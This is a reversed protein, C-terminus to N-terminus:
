FKKYWETFKKFAKARHSYKNKETVTMEAFTRVSNLPRFIPDFGFAESSVKKFKKKAIEGIIEGKFCIPSGLESSYYAIVSEFKAARNKINRMLKLLGQNGLTQHAYSAYPGPFGNLASIFLGTDEVILPLNCQKFADKASTKAIKELNSSQIESAKIRLMCIALEHKSLVERAENFKHINNTAFFVIKGKLQFNINNM